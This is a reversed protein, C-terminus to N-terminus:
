RSRRSRQALFWRAMRGPISDDSRSSVQTTSGSQGTLAAQQEETLVIVWNVGKRPLQLFAGPGYRVNAGQRSVDIEIRRCDPVHGIRQWWAPARSTLAIQKGNRSRRTVVCCPLSFTFETLQYRRHTQFASYPIARLEYKTERPIRYTFLPIPARRDALPQNALSANTGRFVETMVMCLDDLTLVREAM